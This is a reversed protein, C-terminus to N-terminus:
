ATPDDEGPEDSEGLKAQCAAYVKDFDEEKLNSVNTVNAVEDLLDLAVKKGLGDAGAVKRIIARVEDQTHKSKAKAAAPPAKDKPKTSEKTEKPEKSEKPEKTEKPKSEAAAVAAAPAKGAGGAQAVKAITEVAVAIRELLADSM